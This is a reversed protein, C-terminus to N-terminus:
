RDPLAKLEKEFDQYSEIIETIADGSKAELVDSVFKKMREYDEPDRLTKEEEYKRNLICISYSTGVKLKNLSEADYSTNFIDAEALGAPDEGRNKVDFAKRVFFEYLLASM